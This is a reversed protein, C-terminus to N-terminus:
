IKAAWEPAPATITMIKGTRPHTFSLSAAFLHLQGGGGGYLSDGVIPAGLSFASHLRLQHNRGTKPLFKVMTAGGGVSIVRYKTIARLPKDGADCAEKDACVRKGALYNDITGGTGSLEGSLEALYEKVATKDQFQASLKQAANQNKAVVLVGSTDLDLRHVLLMTDYPFMAAAMKDVSKKIGTGGQVALGGPKNFAVLDEDSYIICRRLQELDELSFKGGGTEAPAGSRDQLPPIRVIDGAYLTARDNTKAGNVRINGGRTLRALASFPLGYHRAFWKQIKIGDETPPIRVQAVPM